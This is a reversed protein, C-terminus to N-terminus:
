RGQEASMVQQAQRMLDDAAAVCRDAVLSVQAAVQDGLDALAQGAPGSLGRHDLRWRLVQAQQRAADGCQRLRAAFALLAVADPSASPTPPPRM